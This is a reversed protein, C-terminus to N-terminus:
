LMGHQNVCFVIDNDVVSVEVVDMSEPSPSKSKIPEEKVTPLISPAFTTAVHSPLTSKLSSAKQKM